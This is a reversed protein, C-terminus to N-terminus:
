DPINILVDNDSAQLTLTAESIGTLVAGTPLTEGVTFREGDARAVYSRPATSVMVIRGGFHETAARDTVFLTVTQDVSDGGDLTQFGLVVFAAIALLMFAADVYGTSSRSEKAPPVSAPAAISSEGQPSSTTGPVDSTM